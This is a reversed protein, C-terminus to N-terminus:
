TLKADSLIDAKLAVVGDIVRKGEAEAMADLVGNVTETLDNIIGDQIHRYLGTNRSLLAIVHSEGFYCAL